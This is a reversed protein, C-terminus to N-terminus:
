VTARIAAISPLEANLENLTDSCFVKQSVTADPLKALKEVLAKYMQDATGEFFKGCGAIFMTDGPFPTVGPFASLEYLLTWLIVEFALMNGVSFRPFGPAHHAVMLWNNSFVGAAGNAVLALLVKDLLASFDRSVPSSMRATQTKEKDAKRRSRM